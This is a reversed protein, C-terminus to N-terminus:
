PNIFANIDKLSLKPNAGESQAVLAGVGCAFNIADQPNEKRLLQSILSALFADGAGVTDKVKIKYGSNYYM